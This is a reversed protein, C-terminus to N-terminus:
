LFELNSIVSILHEQLELRYKKYRKFCNQLAFNLNEKSLEGSTFFFFLADSKMEIVVRDIRHLKREQVFKYHDDSLYISEGLGQM